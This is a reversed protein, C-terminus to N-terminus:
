LRRGYIEWTERSWEEVHSRVIDEPRPSEKSYVTYPTHREVDHNRAFLIKSNSPDYLCVVVFTAGDRFTAATEVVQANYDALELYYKESLVESEIACLPAPAAYANVRKISRRKQGGSKRSMAM